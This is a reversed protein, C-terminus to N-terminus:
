EVIDNIGLVASSIIRGLCSLGVMEDADVAVLSQAAKEALRYKLHAILRLQIFHSSFTRISEWECGDATLLHRLCRLLVM